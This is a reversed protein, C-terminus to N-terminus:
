ADDARGLGAIIDNAIRQAIPWRYNLPATGAAENWKELARQNKLRAQSGKLAVERRLILRRAPENGAISGPKELALRIWQRAFHKTTRRLRPNADEVIQWFRNRDWRLFARRNRSLDDAWAELDGTFDEQLDTREAREALMLNYLLPAGHIVEAFLRAHDLWEIVRDPFSSLDPHQWPFSIDTPLLSDVLQALMSDPVMTLIRERLYAAENRTLALNATQFLDEPREPLGAHWWSPARDLSEGDDSKLLDRDVRNLGDFSRYCDEISGGIQRIGFTRLGSWYVSSPLRKVRTKARIGIVGTSEGGAELANILQGEWNRGSGRAKRAPTRRRELEQFVWPVFLFYRARTQITSTGPFLLDAFIDRIAGIGLEDRTDSENWVSIVDLVRRREAESFDLWAIESTM